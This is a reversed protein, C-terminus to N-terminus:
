EIFGPSHESPNKIVFIAEQFLKLITCDQDVVLIWKKYNQDM